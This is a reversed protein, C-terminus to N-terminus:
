NSTAACFVTTSARCDVNERTPAGGARWSRRAPETAVFTALWFLAFVVPFLVSLRESNNMMMRRSRM